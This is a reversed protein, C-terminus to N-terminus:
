LVGGIDPVAGMDPMMPPAMAPGAGPAGMAGAPGAPAPAAQQVALQEREDIHKYIAERLKEDLILFDRSMVYETAAEAMELHYAKRMESAPEIEVEGTKNFTDVARDFIELQRKRATEPADFLNDIENYRLLQVIKKPSIGAAVLTEKAQMIEERRMAPDLSFNAGYEVTLAYGGNLDAGEYSKLAPADENGLILLKRKTKFFKQVNALYTEFVWRVLATYKNFVRHRVMNAANIATQSAFGSLERNVQGQLLENVGMVGDIATNLQTILNFVDASVSTPQLYFPAHSHTGKVTIVDVADASLDEDNTDAEAFVVLKISAHLQINKLVLNQLADVTRALSLAYNVTTSGLIEGPIDIDTLLGYPLIAGPHPNPTMKGLLTGDKALFARRGAMGNVPLGKETYEFIEVIQSGPEPAASSGDARTSSFGESRMESPHKSGDVLQQELLEGQLPWYGLAEELPMVHREFAYRQNGKLEADPDNWVNWVLSPRLRFDGTMMIEGSAQEMALVDGAYPDFYAKIWGSGYTLMSLCVLDINEQMEYERRGYKIFDDAAETARRDESTNSTPSPIVSPPNASMQSHLFRLNQLVRPIQISQQKTTVAQYVAAMSDYSLTPTTSAGLAFLASENAKWQSEFKTERYKMARSLRAQLISKAQEPNWSQVAVTAKM